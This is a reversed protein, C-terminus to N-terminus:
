VVQCILNKHVPTSEKAYVLLLCKATQIFSSSAKL